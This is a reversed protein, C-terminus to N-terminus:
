GIGPLFSAAFFALGASILRGGWPWAPDGRWAWGGIAFLVISVVLLLERVHM